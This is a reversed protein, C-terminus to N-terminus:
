QADKELEEWCSDLDMVLAVFVYFDEFVDDFEEEAGVVIFGWSLAVMGVDFKVFEVELQDLGCVGFEVEFSCCGLREVFDSFGERLFEEKENLGLRMSEDIPRLELRPNKLNQLM